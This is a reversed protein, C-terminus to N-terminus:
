PGQCLMKLNTIGIQADFFVLGQILMDVGIGECELLIFPRFAIKQPGYHSDHNKNQQLICHSKGLTTYFIHTCCAWERVTTRTERLIFIM